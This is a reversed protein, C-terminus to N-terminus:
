GGIAAGELVFEADDLAVDAGVFDVEAAAIDEHLRVILIETDQRSLSLGPTRAM